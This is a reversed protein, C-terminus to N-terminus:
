KKKKSRNSAVLENLVDSFAQNDGQPLRKILYEIRQTQRRSERLLLYAEFRGALVVIISIIGGLISVGIAVVDQLLLGYTAATATIFCSVHSVINFPSEIMNGGFFFGM